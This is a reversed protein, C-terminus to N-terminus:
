ADKGCGDKEADDAADILLDAFDCVHDTGDLVICEGGIRVLPDGRSYASASISWREGERDKRDDLWHFLEWGVEDATRWDVTTSTVAWEGGPEDPVTRTFVRVVGNGIYEAGISGPRVVWGGVM